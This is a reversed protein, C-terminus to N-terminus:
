EVLFLNIEITNKLNENSQKPMRHLLEFEIKQQPKPWMKNIFKCFFWAKGEVHTWSFQTVGFVDMQYFSCLLTFIELVTCPLYLQHSIFSCLTIEKLLAFEICNGYYDSWCTPWFCTNLKSWVRFSKNSTNKPFNQSIKLIKWPYVSLCYKFCM